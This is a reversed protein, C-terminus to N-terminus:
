VILFDMNLAKVHPEDGASLFRVFLPEHTEIWFGVSGRYIM